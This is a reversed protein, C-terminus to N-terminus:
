IDTGDPEELLAREHLWPNLALAQRLVQQAEEDRGLGILTLAKGSLAAVHNPVIALASDLDVLAATYDRRLYNAFARQNYGEAYHPCYEVLADLTDRAGLLDFAARKRMGEDLLAQAKEDPADTWITWLRQTLIRAADADPAVRLQAIIDSLDAGRDPMDPCTQALGPGAILAFPLIWKM